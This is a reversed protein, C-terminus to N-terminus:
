PEGLLSSDNASSVGTQGSEGLVVGSGSVRWGGLAATPTFSGTKGISSSTSALSTAVVV